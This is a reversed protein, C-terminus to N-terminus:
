INNQVGHLISMLLPNRFQPLLLLLLHIYFTTMHLIKVVQFRLPKGPPETTFLGGALCSICTGDRPQSSRRSFSIAVRELIGAQSIGHGSSGPLSYNMPNCLTPCSKTAACHCCQIFLTFLHELKM